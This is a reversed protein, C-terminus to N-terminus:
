GRPRNCSILAHSFSPKWRALMNKNACQFLKIFVRFILYMIYLDIHIDEFRGMNDDWIIGTKALDEVHESPSRFLAAM